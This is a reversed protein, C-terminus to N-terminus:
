DGEAGGCGVKGGGAGGCVVKDGGAGGCVVKDGGAGGCVVKDGGAGGCVVRDGGAGGCVVRVVTTVVHTQVRTPPHLSPIFDPHAPRLGTGHRPLKHQWTAEAVAVLGCQLSCSAFSLPCLDYARM